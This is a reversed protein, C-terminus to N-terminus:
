LIGRQARRARRLRRAECFSWKWIVKYHECREIAISRTLAVYLNLSKWYIECECFQANSLSEM